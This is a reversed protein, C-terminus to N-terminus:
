LSVSAISRLRMQVKGHYIDKFKATRSHYVAYWRADKKAHRAKLISLIKGMKNLAYAEDKKLLKKDINGLGLRKFEADWVKTNIQALSLDGSVSVAANNFNSETSIIAVMIKPDIAFKKSTQFLALAIQNRRKEKLRPEVVEIMKSITAINYRAIEAKTFSKPMVQTSLMSLILTLILTKTTKM